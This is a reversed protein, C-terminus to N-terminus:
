GIATASSHRCIASGCSARGRRCAGRDREPARRRRTPRAASRRLGSYGASRGLAQARAAGSCQGREISGPIICAINAQARAALEADLRAAREYHAIASEIRGLQFQAAALNYHAAASIPRLDAPKASRPLRPATREFRSIRAVPATGPRPWAADIQLARAYAVGGRALPRGVATRRRLAGRRRRAVPVSRAGRAPLRPGRCAPWEDLMANATALALHPDPFTSDRSPHM